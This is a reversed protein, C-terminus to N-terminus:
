QKAIHAVAGILGRDKLGTWKSALCYALKVEGRGNKRAYLICDEGKSNAFDQVKAKMHAEYSADLPVSTEGTPAPTTAVPAAVPAVLTAQVAATLGQIAEMVDKMSTRQTGM